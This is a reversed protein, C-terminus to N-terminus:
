PYQLKLMFHEDNTTHQPNVSIVHRCNKGRECSDSDCDLVSLIVELVKNEIVAHLYNLLTHM